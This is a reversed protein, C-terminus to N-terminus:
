LHPHYPFVSNGPWNELQTKRLSVVSAPNGDGSQPTGLFRPTFRYPSPNSSSFLECCLLPIWGGFFSHFQDRTWLITTVGPSRWTGGSSNAVRDLDTNDTRSQCYDGPQTRECSRWGLGKIQFHLPVARGNIFFYNGWWKIRTSNGQRKWKVTNPDM